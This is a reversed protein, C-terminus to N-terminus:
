APETDTAHANPAVTLYELGSDVLTPSHRTLEPTVADSLYIRRLTDRIEESVSKEHDFAARRVAEKLPKEVLSQLLETYSEAM